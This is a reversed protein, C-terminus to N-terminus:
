TETMELIQTGKQAHEDVKLTVVGVFFACM